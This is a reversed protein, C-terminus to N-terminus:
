SLFHLLPLVANMRRSCAPVNRMGYDRRNSQLKNFLATAYCDKLILRYCFQLIHVIGSVEVNTYTERLQLTRNVKVANQITKLEM